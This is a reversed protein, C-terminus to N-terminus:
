RTERCDLSAAFGSISDFEGARRCEAVKWITLTLAPWVEANVMLLKKLM